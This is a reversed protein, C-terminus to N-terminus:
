TPFRGSSSEKFSNSLKARNPLATALKHTSFFPAIGAIGSKLSTSFRTLRINSLYVFSNLILFFSYFM